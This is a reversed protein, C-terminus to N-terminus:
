EAAPVAAMAKTLDILERESVGLRAQDEYYRDVIEKARNDRQREERLRKVESTVAKVLSDDVKIGSRKLEDAYKKFAYEVASTGTHKGYVFTMEGGFFTPDIVQYMRRDISLGATHIGSEHAYVNSGVIPEHPQVPLGTLDQVLRSLSLMQDYKFNPIEIGYLYYLAALVSHMPANGAREGVGNVTVTPINAGVSMATLTNITGLDFDNHFHIVQDVGPFAAVLRSFYFAAAQPTFVGVTDPFSLRTAGSEMCAKGMEIIYEIHSRSGDEANGAEISKVGKSRAYRIAEVFMQQNEARYWSVPLDLWESEDKGARRLLTKGLKYKVHLDSGATFIFFTVDEPSGGVEAIAELTKDIDGANARCMVILEFDNRLQGSKKGELLRQLGEQEERSVAPFGLDIMHVGIDSLAVALEYKQEPTFAVGPTQEGDRLTTDYIKIRKPDPFQLDKLFTQPPIALQDYPERFDM